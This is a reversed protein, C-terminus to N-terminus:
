STKKKRKKTIEVKEDKQKVNIVFEIDLTQTSKRLLDIEESITKVFLKVDEIDCVQCGNIKIDRHQHKVM